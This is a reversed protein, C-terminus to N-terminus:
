IQSPKEATPALQVLRRQGCCLCDPQEALVIDSVYVDALSLAVDTGADHLEKGSGVQGAVSSEVQYVPLISDTDIGQIWLGASSATRSDGRGEM